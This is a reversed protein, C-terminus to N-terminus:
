LGTEVGPLGAFDDAGEEDAFAVADRVALRTVGGGADLREAAGDTGQLLLEGAEREHHLEGGTWQM